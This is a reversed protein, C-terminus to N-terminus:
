VSGCARVSRVLKRGNKASYVVEAPLALEMEEVFTESRQRLMHIERETLIAQVAKNFAACTGFSAEIVALLRQRDDAKYCGAHRADLGVLSQQLSMAQEVEPQHDNGGRIDVLPLVTIREARGGMQM